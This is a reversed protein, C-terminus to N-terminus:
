LIIENISLTEEEEAICIPVLKLLKVAVVVLKLGIVYFNDFLCKRSKESLECGEGYKRSKERM